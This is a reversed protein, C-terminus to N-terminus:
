GMLDAAPRAGAAHSTSPKPRRYSRRQITTSGAPRIIECRVWGLSARTRGAMPSSVSRTSVAPMGASSSGSAGVGATLMATVTHSSVQAAAQVPSRAERQNESTSSISQLRTWMGSLVMRGAVLLGQAVPLLWLTGASAFPALFAGYTAPRFFFWPRRGHLLAIANDLYNGSDSYALPFGNYLALVCSVVAAGLLPRWGGLLRGANTQGHSM